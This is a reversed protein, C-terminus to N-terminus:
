VHARGIKVVGILVLMFENYLFERSFDLTTMYHSAIVANISLTSNWGLLASIFVIVFIVIGYATWESHMRPMLLYALLTTLFFTGLRVFSFKVTDWKTVLLSLLTVTGASAAYQLHLAEAIYIAAGCGVAIKFALLTTKQLKRKMEMSM